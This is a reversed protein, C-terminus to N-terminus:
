SLRSDRDFDKVYAGTKSLDDQVSELVRMEGSDKGLTGASGVGGLPLVYEQDMYARGSVKALDDQVSKLVEMESKQMQMQVM